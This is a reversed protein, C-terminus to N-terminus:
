LTLIKKKKSECQCMHIWVTTGFISFKLIYVDFTNRLVLCLLM